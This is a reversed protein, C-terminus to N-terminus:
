ESIEFRGRDSKRFRAESGKTQIERLIAAYLTAHPTKGGPSQWLGQDAMAEIMQKTGMPAKAKKLVIAAADLASIRKEGEPKVAKTPKRAKPAKTAKKKTAKKSTKKAMDTESEISPTEIEVRDSAADDTNTEECHEDWHQQCMPKGLCTVMTPKPCGRVWCRDPDYQPADDDNM